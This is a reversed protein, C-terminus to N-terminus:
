TEGSINQRLIITKNCSSNAALSLRFAKAHNLELTQGLTGAAGVGVSRPTHYLQVCRQCRRWHQLYSSLTSVMWSGFHPQGGLDLTTLSTNSPSWLTIMSANDKLHLYRLNSKQNRLLTTISICAMRGVRNGNLNLEVLETSRKLAGIIMCM